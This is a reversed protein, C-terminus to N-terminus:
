GCPNDLLSNVEEVLEKHGLTEVVTITHPDISEFRVVTGEIWISSAAYMSGSHHAGVLGSCGLAAISAALGAVKQKM